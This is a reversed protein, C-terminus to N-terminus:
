NDFNDSEMFWADDVAGETMDNDISHVSEEDDMYDADDDIEGCLSIAVLLREKMIKKSTYPPLDMSDGCTHGVPFRQNVPNDESEDDDSRYGVEIYQSRGQSLRTRGCMFKILM